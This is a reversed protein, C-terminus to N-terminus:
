LLPCRYKQSVNPPPLHIAVANMLAISADLWTHLVVKCLKKAQLELQEPTLDIKM